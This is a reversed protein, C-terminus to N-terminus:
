NAQHRVPKRIAAPKGKHRVKQGGYTKEDRLILVALVILWVLYAGISVREWVGIFPTSLNAELRPADRFTLIGFLVFIIITTISYLRFAKGFSIAGLVIAAMMLCVTIISLVIHMTDTFSGQGIALAERQHMPALPWLLGIIGYAFILWGTERLQRSYFHSRLVGWGFAVILLTYLMGFGVWVTRTPADIASLESVTQSASRYGTYLMPIFINMAVYLLSSLIGCVILGKTVTGTILEDNKMKLTKITRFRRLLVIFSVISLHHTLASQRIIIMLL